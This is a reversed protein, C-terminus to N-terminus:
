ILLSERKGQSGALADGREYRQDQGSIRRGVFDDAIGAASRVDPNNSHRLSGVNVDTLNDLQYDLRANKEKEVKSDLKTELEEYSIDMSPLGLSSSSFLDARRRHEEATMRHKANLQQVSSDTTDLKRKRPQDPM